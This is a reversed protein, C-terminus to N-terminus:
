VISETFMQRDPQFDLDIKVDKDGQRNKDIRLVLPKIFPQGPKRKLTTSEKDEGLTLMVDATYEIDGSEKATALNSDQMKYGSARNQSAVVVVCCDIECALARLQETLFTVAERLEMNLGQARIARAMRQLYDIVLVGQSPAEAFHALAKERIAELSIAGTADLYRLYKTSQREAQIALAERIKAQESSWGKKVATYNVQGIRALTKCILDHPSDESTVYLVPRGGDAVHDAIQHALTTKGCNPAGLLVVERKSELGGGLADNLSKFGTSACMKRWEVQTWYGALLDPISIDIIPPAPFLVSDIDQRAQYLLKKPNPINTKGAEHQRDYKALENQVHTLVQWLEADDPTIHHNTPSVPTDLM